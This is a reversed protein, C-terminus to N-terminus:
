DNDGLVVVPCPANRVVYDSVSGFFARKLGGMGRTGMVIASANEDRALACIAPGPTGEIVQGIVNDVSLRAVAKDVTAQAARLSADRHESFEKETMTPGAHGGGDYALAPDVGEVATVVLVREAPRLIALAADAAAAAIESGDTCVVITSM